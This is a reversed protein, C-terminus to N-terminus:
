RLTCPTTAKKPKQAPTSYAILIGCGTKGGSLSAALEQFLSQDVLESILKPAAIGNAPLGLSAQYRKLLNASTQGFIGDAKIAIGQASLGLQLLRVDLGRALPTQLAISHTGPQPGDYCGPPTAQLTAQSIEEGRVVLPLPLGWYGQEILRLFADMRYTTGQLDSRRHNALWSRRTEVYAKIWPREGTEQVCRVSGVIHLTYIETTATDNFFFFIYTFLQHRMHHIYVVSTQKLVTASMMMLLTQQSLFLYFYQLCFFNAHGFFQRKYVDSAASSICHTSRPPRRIM